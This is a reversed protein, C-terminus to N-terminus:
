DPSAFHQVFLNESFIILVYLDSKRVERTQWSIYKQILTPILVVRAFYLCLSFEKKKKKRNVVSGQYNRGLRILFDITLRLLMPTPQITKLTWLYVIGYSALKNERRTRRTSVNEQGELLCM